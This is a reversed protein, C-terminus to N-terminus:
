AHGTQIQDARSRGFGFRRRPQPPAYGEAVLTLVTQKAEEIVRKDNMVIRDAQAVFWVKQEVANTAVKAM